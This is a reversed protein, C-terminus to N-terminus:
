TRPPPVFRTRRRAVRPNSPRARRLWSRRCRCRSALRPRPRLAAHRPSGRRRGAGPEEPLGRRRPQGHLEHHRQRRLAGALRGARLRREHPGQHPLRLRRGAREQGPRRPHPLPLRPLRRRRRHAAYGRGLPSPEEGPESRGTCGTRRARPASSSRRMCAAGHGARAGPQRVGEARRLLGAHSGDGVARQPRHTTDRMEDAGARTDFAWGGASKVIPIPLTGTRIASKSRPRANRGAACCPAIHGLRGPLRAQGGASVEDLQLVKRYDAGLIRRMADGDSTAVADVFAQPRPTPAPSSRSRRASRRCRPWCCALACRPWAAIAFIAHCAPGRFPHSSHAPGHDAGRHAGGGGGARAGGGGGHMGGSAQAGPTCRGALGPAATRAHPPSADAGAAAGRGPPQSARSRDARTRRVGNGAGHLANDRSAPSPRQAHGPVPRARGGCRRAPGQGDGATRRRRRDPRRWRPAAIRHPGAGGGPRQQARRNCSRAHRRTTRASPWRRARPMASPTTPMAAVTTTARTRAPWTRATSRTRSPTATPCARAGRPTTTSTTRTTASRATSTSTTTATSTSTSTTAAGTTAAGCRIPSPWAPASPWAPSCRTASTTARRRRAHLVAPVVPLALRRLGRDPQLDARVGGAAAGAPHRDREAAADPERDGGEAARDVEAHRRRARRKRLRQVADMTDTPQALFADGLEQVWEPKQGMTALVQPFAVLSTVSPEWGQSEAKTSPPMARTTPTRRGVLDGGRGGAGPLHRGDAGADAVLRPVARDAGAVPRAAGQQLHTCREADLRATGRCLGAPSRRTEAVLRRM